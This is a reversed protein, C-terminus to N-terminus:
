WGVYTKGKEDCSRFLHSFKKSKLITGVRVQVKEKTEGSAAATEAILDKLLVSKGEPIASLVSRIATNVQSVRRGEKVTLNETDLMEM